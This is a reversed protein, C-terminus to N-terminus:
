VTKWDGNKIKEKMECVLKKVGHLKNKGQKQYKLHEEVSHIAAELGAKGYNRSMECLFYRTAKENVTFTYGSGLEITIGSLMAEVASLYATASKEKMECDILLKVATSKEKRGDFVEKGLRYAETYEQKHIVM